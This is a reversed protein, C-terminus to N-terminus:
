TYLICSYTLRYAPLSYRTLSFYVVSKASPIDDPYDFSIDVRYDFSIDDRYDLSTDPYDLSIDDPYDLSFGQHKSRSLLSCSSPIM